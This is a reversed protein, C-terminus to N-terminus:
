GVNLKVKNKHGEECTWVVYGTEEFFIAEDDVEFCGTHECWWPGIRPEGNGKTVASGSIEEFINGV